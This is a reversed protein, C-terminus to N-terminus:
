GGKQDSDDYKQAESDLDSLYGLRALAAAIKEETGPNIIASTPGLPEGIFRSAPSERLAQLIQPTDVQLVMAPYIRVQGGKKRWQRLSQILSPPVEQSYKELLKELHLIKLGQETAKSLSAPTLRYTYNLSMETEWLCFRSIQYRALRPTHASATLSGDSFVEILHDEEPLGDVPQGLLLQAAWSSFRFATIPQATGTSALDILGLWHMPGTVLFHTMAGDVDDWHQIGALSEGSKADRVLWTDFDGAPRQFDPERDYIAGIFSGLHWWTGEPIESLYALVTDRANVPDNVWAGDCMVGPMLRLENFLHSERWGRVLWALAEGRSMELFSRADELVPQETSSILKLAALLAYLVEFPPLWGAVAPSRNPDGMRLAALLTCAHDLIRDSVPIIHVTEGKSAARGPPQPGAPVVPPLLTLLDDPIYACEQLEGEWRLFDRGILGRYWLAEVPSVPDLYPKERDRKGPGVERITGFARTFRSWSMKGRNAILADLAHRAKSSLSEVIELVLAPEIMREALQPLATRVDPATLEIGWFEAVIQQFGLDHTHLRHRLDPMADRTYMLEASIPVKNLDKCVNYM